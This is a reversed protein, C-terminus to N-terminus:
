ESRLANVPNMLAAKVSQFSVTLLAVGVALGGAGAFMWWEIDIKYAFDQLWRHMAYWALPIALVFSVTVLKVFDGSLLTVIGFVSAGLVKRVGIEKTRQETMHTALGFLGLCAIFIALASAIIFVQGYQQETRYQENYREDVFYFEFPNGPYAAKYLRELEALKRQINGGQIPDTTLQVAFDAPLGRRPMFIIPDIAQRLGQHHYDKVVGVIEFPQEWNIIQGAAEAPQAFGLQRAATENVMLKAIKGWAAEAERPTFNRGAVLGIGFTQLYRDDIIGMSYSKKEADAPPNEKKIGNAGFSYQNGPVISTTSYAKVFPLKALQNELVATGLALTPEDGLKPGQIVVRQDLRVGLDKNQMYQLQRYLVLTSVVLAISASFQAVVLTQRLPGGRGYSRPHPEPGKLTQVPQFSTMVFAVYGGSALSGSLLLGVGVFWFANSAVDTLSLDKQIFENFARQGGVILGLALLFGMGNLLLSEGM